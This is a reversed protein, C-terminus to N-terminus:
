IAQRRNGELHVVRLQLLKRTVVKTRRSYPSELEITGNTIVEKIVWLRSGKKKLWSPHFKLKVSRLMIPQGPKFDDKMIIADQYVKDEETICPASLKNVILKKEGFEPVLKKKEENAQPTCCQLFKKLM